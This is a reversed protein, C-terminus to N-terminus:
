AWKTWEDYPLCPLPKKNVLEPCPREVCLATKDGAKSCALKMIQLHHDARLRGRVRPGLGQKALKVTIEQDPSAVFFPGAGAYDSM